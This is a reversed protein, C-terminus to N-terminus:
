VKSQHAVFICGVVWYLKMGLEVFLVGRLCNALEPKIASKAKEM